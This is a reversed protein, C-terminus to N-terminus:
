PAEKTSDEREFALIKCFFSNPRKYFNMVLVQHYVGGEPDEQNNVMTCWDICCYLVMMIRIHTYQAHTRAHTCINNSYM